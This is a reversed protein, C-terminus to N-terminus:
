YFTVFKGPPSGVGANAGARGRLWITITPETKDPLPATTVEQGAKKLPASLLDIIKEDDDIVLIKAM